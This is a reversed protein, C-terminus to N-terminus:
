PAVCSTLAAYWDMIVRSGKMSEWPCSTLLRVSVMRRFSAPSWCTPTPGTSRNIPSERRRPLLRSAGARQDDLIAGFVSPSDFNPYCLWDISGNLGVLAVTHMNGIIGYNEIPQYPM